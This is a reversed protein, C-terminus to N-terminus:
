AQIAAKNAILYEKFTEPERGLLISIEPTVRADPFSDTATALDIAFIHPFHGSEMVKNYKQIPKIQQYNIQRGVIDSVVQAWQHGNSTDGTLSYVADGHKAISESLVVAAVAGIDNTSIFGLSSNSPFTDFIINDPGPRSSLIMNTMFRGPRLTVLNGRGPLDLMAKEAGYHLAGIYSTRWGMNVAASSIDVIQKVGSDYAIKAINKKLNVFDSFDSVLLFLRSHGKIGTELSSLDSFDGQVINILETSNPFMSEIKSPTRAYLTMAVKKELLDQVLKIGINGTGGLIFVRDNTVTM